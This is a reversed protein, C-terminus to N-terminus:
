LIYVHMVQSFWSKHDKTLKTRIGTYYCTMEQTKDDFACTAPHEYQKYIVDQYKCTDNSCYFGYSPSPDLHMDASVKTFVEKIAKFIAFKVNSGVEQEILHVEYHTSCSSFIIIQSFGSVQYYFSIRDRYQNESKIIIWKHEVILGATAACFLGIPCHGHEFMVLFSSLPNCNSVPAKSLVSPMFFVNEDMKSIIHRHQLLMLLEDKKLCGEVDKLVSDELQGKTRLSEKYDLSNVKIIIETISDFILQFDTIVYNNLKPIDSYYLLTGAEDHLFRLVKKFNVENIGCKNAIERCKKKEVIRLKNSKAYSHLVFDFVLYRAPIDQSATQDSVFKEIREKVKVIDQKKFSHIGIIFDEISEVQMRKYTKSERLWGHMTEAINRIQSQKTDESGKLEDKHTGVFVIKSGFPNPDKLSSSVGSITHFIFDKVIYRDPWTQLVGDNQQFQVDKEETLGDTLKFILLAVSPGSILLPFIEQFAPQGGGDIVQLLMSNNLTHLANVVKSWEGTLVADFFLQKIDVKSSSQNNTEGAASSDMQITEVVVTQVSAADSESMSNTATAATTSHQLKREGNHESPTLSMIDGKPNLPIKEPQMSDKILLEKDLSYLLMKAIDDLEKVAWKWEQNEGSQAVIREILIPSCVEAVPTSSEPIDCTQKIDETNRLIQKRLTTKGARPTGYFILKGIKFGPFSVDNSDALITSVM